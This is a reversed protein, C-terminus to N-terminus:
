EWSLFSFPLRPFTPWHKQEVWSLRARISHLMIMRRFISPLGHCSLFLIVNSVVNWCGLVSVYLCVIKGFLVVPCRQWVSFSWKWRAVFCYFWSCFTDFRHVFWILCHFNLCDFFCQRQRQMRYSFYFLFLVYTHCHRNNETNLFNFIM